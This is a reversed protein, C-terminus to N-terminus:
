ANCQELIADQRAWMRAEEEPTAHDYGLLHLVGHVVLVRLEEETSRRLEAEVNCRLEDEVNRRLEDEVGCSPEAAQAQARAFSIVVDGLYPPEDPARVFAGKAPGEGFSLVDTPEDLGRFQGNLAQIEADGTIVVSMEAGQPAQEMELATRAIREIQEADVRDRFEPRVLVEVIV